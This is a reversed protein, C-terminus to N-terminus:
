SSSSNTPSNLSLIEFLDGNIMMKYLDALTQRKNNAVLLVPFTLQLTVDNRLIESLNFHSLVAVITQLVCFLIESLSSPELPHSLFNIYIM